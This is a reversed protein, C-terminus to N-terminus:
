ILAIAVTTPVATQDDLTGVSLNNRLPGSRGRPAARLPVVLRGLDEVRQGFQPLRVVVLVLVV